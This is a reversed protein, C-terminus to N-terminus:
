EATTSHAQMHHDQPSSNVRNGRRSSGKAAAARHLEAWEEFDEPVTKGTALMHERYLQWGNDHSLVSLLPGPHEARWALWATPQRAEVYEEYTEPLAKQGAFAARYLRWGLPDSLITYCPGPHVKKWALWERLAKRRAGASNQWEEFQECQSGGTAEKMACYLKWGEPDKLVELMPGKNKRRWLAWNMTAEQRRRYPSDLWEEYSSPVPVGGMQLKRVYLNWGEEDRLVDSLPGPHQRRWLKWSPALNNRLRSSPSRLWEDYTAPFDEGRVQALAQSLAFGEVRRPGSLRSTSRWAAQANALSAAADPEWEKCTAPMPTGLTEIFNRFLKWAEEERSLVQLLPEDAHQERWRIWETAAVAARQKPLQLWDEYTPPIQVGKAKMLAFYLHWGEPERLISILSGPHEERWAAWAKSAEELAKFDEYSEPLPRSPKSMAARYLKWGEPDKLLDPLSDTPQGSSWSLWADMAANRAKNKQSGSGAKSKAKAGRKAEAEGVGNLREKKATLHQQQPLQLWEEYTAPLEDKLGNKQQQLELDSRYLQWGQPDALVSALPGPHERRWAQWSSSAKRDKWQEYTEDAHKGSAELMQKYLGYGELDALVRRLAGPHARRWTTWAEMAMAKITSPHHCWEAHTEPLDADQPARKAKYLAWGEPDALVQILPGPHQRRWQVWAEYAASRRQEQQQLWEEFTPPVTAGKEQKMEYFLKWGEPDSLAERLPKPHNRKWEVWRQTCKTSALWDEYSNLNARTSSNHQLMEKYLRWAEPHKLAEELPMRHKSRWARWARLSSAAEESHRMKSGGERAEGEMKLFIRYLVVPKSKSDVHRWASSRVLVGCGASSTLLLRFCFLIARYLLSLRRSREFRRFFSWPAGFRQREPAGFKASSGLGALLSRWIIWPIGCSSAFHTAIDPCGVCDSACPPALCLSYQHSFDFAEIGVYYLYVGIM